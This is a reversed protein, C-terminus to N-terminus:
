SSGYPEVTCAQELAKVLPGYSYSKPGARLNVMDEGNLSFELVDNSSGDPEWNRAISFGYNLLLQSNGRAGYTLRLLEHQKIEVISRVEVSGDQLRKYAM